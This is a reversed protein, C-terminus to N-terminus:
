SKREKLADYIKLGSAIFDALKRAGQGCGGADM